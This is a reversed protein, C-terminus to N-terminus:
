LCFLASFPLFSLDLNFLVQLYNLYMVFIIFLVYNSISEFSSIIFLSPNRQLFVVPWSPIALSIQLALLFFYAVQFIQGSLIDSLISPSIFIKELLGFSFSYLSVFGLNFSISFPSRWVLFFPLFPFFLSFSFLLLLPLVLVSSVAILSYDSLYALM